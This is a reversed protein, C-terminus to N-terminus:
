CYFVLYDLLLAQFYFVVQLKFLSVMLAGISFSLSIGIMNLMGYKGMIESFLQYTSDEKVRYKYNNSFWSIFGGSKSADAVSVLSFSILLELFNKALVLTISSFAFIIASFFFVWREGIKDSLAGTPINVIASIVFQFAIIIGVERFSVLSLAYIVFFTNVSMILFNFIINITTSKTIFERSEPSFNKLNFFSNVPNFM